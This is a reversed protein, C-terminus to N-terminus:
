IRPYVKTVMATNFIRMVSAKILSQYEADSTADDAICRGIRLVPFVSLPSANTAGSMWKGAYCVSNWISQNRKGESLAALTLKLRTHSREMSTNATSPLSSRFIRFSSHKERLGNSQKVSGFRIM